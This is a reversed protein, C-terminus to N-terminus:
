DIMIFNISKCLAINFNDINQPGLAILETYIIDLNNRIEEINISNCIGPLPYIWQRLRLLVKIAGLYNRRNIHYYAVATQLLARNLIKNSKKESMWAVEFYEHAEFYKGKNFYAIGLRTNESIESYCAELIEQCNIQFVANSLINELNGFLASRDYIQDTYLRTDIHQYSVPKSVYCLVPYRRTAPSKKLIRIWENMAIEENGVDFIVLAPMKKSIYDLLLYEENNSYGSEPNRFREQVHIRLQLPDPTNLLQFGLSNSVEEIIMLDDHNSIFTIILNPYPKM